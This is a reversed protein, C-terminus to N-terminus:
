FGAPHDMECFVHKNEIKHLGIVSYVASGGQNSFVCVGSPDPYATFGEKRYGSLFLDAAPRNIISNM